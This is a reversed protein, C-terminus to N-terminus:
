WLSACSGNTITTSCILWKILYFTIGWSALIILLGIVLAQIKGMVEKLKAENGASTMYQFGAVILLAVMIIAIFGLITQLIKLAIVKVDKPNSGYSSAASEQLLAQRQLLTSDALVPKILPSINFQLIGLFAVLM